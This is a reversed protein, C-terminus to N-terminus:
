GTFMSPHSCYEHEEATQWLSGETHVVAKIKCFDAIGAFHNLMTQTYLPLCIFPDYEPSIGTVMM